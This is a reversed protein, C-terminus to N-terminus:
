MKGDLELVGFLHSRTLGIDDLLRCDLALLERAARREDAARGSVAWRRRLEVLLARLRASAALLEAAAGFAAPSTIRDTM